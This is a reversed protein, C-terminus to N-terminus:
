RRSTLRSVSTNEDFLPPVCIWVAGASSKAACIRRSDIMSSM